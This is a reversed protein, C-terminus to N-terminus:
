VYESFGIFGILQPTYVLPYYYYLIEIIYLICTKKSSVDRFIFNQGHLPKCRLVKVSYLQGECLKPPTEGLFDYIKYITGM